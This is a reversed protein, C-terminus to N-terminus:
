HGRRFQKLKAWRPDEDDETIVAAKADARRRLAQEILANFRLREDQALRTDRYHEPFRRALWLYASLRLVQHECAGLESYSSPVKWIPSRPASISRGAAHLRAWFAIESLMRPGDGGAPVGLYRYRDKLPLSNTDTFSAIGRASDMAAPRLRPDDGILHQAIYDLIPRLKETQLRQAVAAVANWPPMVPLRDDEPPEAAGELAAAVLAPEQGALVGAVGSEALGYRGARGAIQRIEASTLPRKRRGDFKELTSFIVRQIPLNLGMGIADTAVLVQADGTRFRESEARRVEPGLAGYISAVAFGRQLLLTRFRLVDTRTFAVLADGPRVDELRLPTPEAVLPSKREFSLVELAEGTMDALRTVFPVADPSGTMVITRAPMGVLAQTWAWGRDHHAIIQVEDVVAVDIARDLEAMEITSSVHTAGDVLVEEEGTRMDTPVGATNLRDAGELAMLRLPALYAGQRAAKLAEMAAHTKGSNTPGIHLVLRRRMARATPFMRAYDDLGTESRLAHRDREQSWRNIAQALAEELRGTVLRILRDAPAPDLSGITGLGQRVAKELAETFRTHMTDPMGQRVSAVRATWAALTAGLSRSVRSVAADGASMMAARLQERAKGRPFPGVRAAMADDPLVFLTEVATVGLFPLDIRVPRAMALRHDLLRAGPGAMALLAQDRCAQVRAMVKESALASARRRAKLVSQWERRWEPVRTALEPLRAPDFRPVGAGEGRQGNRQGAPRTEAVPLRGEALWRRFETPTIALLQRLRSGGILSMQWRRWADEEAQRRQMAEAAAREADQAARRAAQQALKERWIEERQARQVLMAMGQAAQTSLGLSPAVLDAVAKALSVGPPLIANLAALGAAPKQRLREALAKGDALGLESLGARIRGSMREALIEVADEVRRALMADAIDPSDLIDPFFPLSEAELMRRLTASAEARAQAM